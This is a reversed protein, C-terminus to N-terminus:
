TDMSRKGALEMILGSVNGCSSAADTAPSLAHREHAPLAPGQDIRGARALSMQAKALERAQAQFTGMQDMMMSECLHTWGGQKEVVSWGLEGIYDKASTRNSWGYKTIAHVIRAAAERAQTDDDIPPEAIARIHAPLPPRLNKINRRYATMALVVAQYPLDSIDDVYMEFAEDRIQQQYYAALKLWMGKVNKREESNM